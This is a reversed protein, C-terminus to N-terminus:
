FKVEKNAQRTATINTSYISIRLFWKQNKLGERKSLNLKKKKHKRNGTFSLYCVVVLCRTSDKEHYKAFCRFM